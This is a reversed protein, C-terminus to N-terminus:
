PLSKSLSDVCIEGLLFCEWEILGYGSLRREARSFSLLRFKFFVAHSFPTSCAPSDHPGCSGTKDFVNNWCGFDTL